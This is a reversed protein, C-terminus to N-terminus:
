KQRRWFFFVEEHCLPSWRRLSTAQLQTSGSRPDLNPVYISDYHVKSLPNFCCNSFTNGPSVCLSTEITLLLVFAMVYMTSLFSFIHHRNFDGNKHSKLKKKKASSLSLFNQKCNALLPM